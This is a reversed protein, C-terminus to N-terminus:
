TAAKQVTPQANYLDILTLTNGLIRFLQGAIAVETFPDLMKLTALSIKVTIFAVM